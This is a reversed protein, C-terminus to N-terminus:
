RNDDRHFYKTEASQDIYKKLGLECAGFLQYNNKGEGLTMHNPSSYKEDEEIGDYEWFCVKCIDYARNDFQDPLSLYGCCPCPYRDEVFGEVIVQEGLLSSLVTSIFENKVGCYEIMISVVILPTYKESSFDTLEIEDDIEKRVEDSISSYEDGSLSCMWCDRILSEREELSLSRTQTEAILRIAQERGLIM